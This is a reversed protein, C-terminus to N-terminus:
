MYLATWKEISMTWIHCSLFSLLIFQPSPSSFPVIWVQTGITNASLVIIGLVLVVKNRISFDIICVIYITIVTM